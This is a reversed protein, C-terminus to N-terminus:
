TCGNFMTVKLTRTATWNTPLLGIDSKKYKTGHPKTQILRVYHSKYLYKDASDNM